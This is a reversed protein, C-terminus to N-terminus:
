TMSVNVNSLSCICCISTAFLSLVRSTELLLGILTHSNSSASMLSYIAKIAVTIEM